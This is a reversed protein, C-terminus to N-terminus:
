IFKIVGLTVQFAPLVMIGISKGDLSVPYQSLGLQRSDLENLKQNLGNFDEIENQSPVVYNSEISFVKM